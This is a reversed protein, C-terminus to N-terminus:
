HPLHHDKTLHISELITAENKDLQLLMEFKSEFPHPNTPMRLDFRLVESCLSLKVVM